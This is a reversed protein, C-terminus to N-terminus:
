ARHRRSTRLHMRAQRMFSLRADRRIFSSGGRAKAEPQMPLAVLNGISSNGRPLEDQCPIIRDFSDLKLLGEDAITLAILRELVRRVVAAQMPVSLFLWLHVGCASRSIEPVLPIGHKRATKIVAKGDREWDSDDFDLVAFRCTNDTLLPYVGMVIDGKLHSYYTGATVKEYARHPCLHCKLSCGETYRMTCKPSYGSKQADTRSAWRTAYVDSRGAFLGAFLEVKERSTLDTEAVIKPTKVSGTRRLGRM